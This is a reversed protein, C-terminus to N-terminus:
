RPEDFWTRTLCVFIKSIIRFIELKDRLSRALIWPSTEQSAEAVIEISDESFCSVTLACDWYDPLSSNEDLCGDGWSCYSSSSWEVVLSSLCGFTRKDVFM